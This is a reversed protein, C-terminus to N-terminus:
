RFQCTAKSDGGEGWALDERSYLRFTAACAHMAATRYHLLSAANNGGYDEGAEKNPDDVLRHSLDFHAQLYCIGGEGAGGGSKL